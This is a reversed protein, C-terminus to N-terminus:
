SAPVWEWGGHSAIAVEGSSDGQDTLSMNQSTMVGQHEYHGLLVGEDSGDRKYLETKYNKRIGLAAEFDEIQDVNVLGSGSVDLQKGNVRVTRVPVQGPKECDQTFRDTTNATKNINVSTIGCLIEFVETPTAGNGMRVLVFDPDNPISM